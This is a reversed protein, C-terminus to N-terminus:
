HGGNSYSKYYESIEKRIKRKRIEHGIIGIMGGVILCIAYVCIIPLKDHLTLTIIVGSIFSLLYTLLM